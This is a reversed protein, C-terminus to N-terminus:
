FAIGVSGGNSYGPELVGHAEIYLHVTGNGIRLGGTWGLATEDLDDRRGAHFRGYPEILGIAPLVVGAYAFLFYRDRDAQVNGGLSFRQLVLLGAGARFCSLPTGHYDTDVFGASLWAEGCLGDSRAPVAAFTATLAVGLAIVARLLHGM